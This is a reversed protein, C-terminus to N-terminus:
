IEIRTEKYATVTWGNSRAQKVLKAFDSENFKMAPKLAENAKTASKSANNKARYQIIKFVAHKVYLNDKVQYRDNDINLMGLNKMIYFLSRDVKSATAIAKGGSMTFWIKDAIMKQLLESYKKLVVHKPTRM